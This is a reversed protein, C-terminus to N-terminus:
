QKKFDNIITANAAFRRQLEKREESNLIENQEAIANDVMSNYDKVKILQEDRAKILDGFREKM